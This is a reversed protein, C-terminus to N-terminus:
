SEFPNGAHTIELRHEIFRVIEDVQQDIQPDLSRDVKFLLQRLRLLAREIARSPLIPIPIEKQQILNKVADPVNLTGNDIMEEAQFVEVGEQYALLCLILKRVEWVFHDRSFQSEMLHDYLRRWVVYRASDDSRNEQYNRLQQRGRLSRLTNGGVALSILIPLALYVGQPISKLILNTVWMLYYIPIVVTDRVFDWFILSLVAFILAITVIALIFRTKNAIM